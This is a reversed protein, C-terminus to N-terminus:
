YNLNQACSSLDIGVDKAIAIARSIAAYIDGRRISKNFERDSFIERYLAIRERHDYVLSKICKKLTSCVYALTKVETDHELLRKIKSAVRRLVEVSAGYSTLGMDIGEVTLRLPVVVNGERYDVANNVLRGLSLALDVIDKALCRDDLAIVVLDHNELLPKVVGLNSKEVELAVVEINNATGGIGEISSRCVMTVRAGAKSFLSARRMGVSGCGFVIVRLNKFDIFLPLYM